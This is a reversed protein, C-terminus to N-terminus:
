DLKKDAGILEAKTTSGGSLIVTIEGADAVVSNNTVVIGQADVIFGSGVSSVLRTSADSRQNNRGRQGRREFFDRFLEDNNISPPREQANNRSDTRPSTSIGVVADVVQEAVDAISDPGVAKLPITFAPLILSSIAVAALISQSRQPLWTTLQGSIN